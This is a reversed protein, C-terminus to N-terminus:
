VAVSHNVQIMPLHLVGGLRRHSLARHARMDQTAAGGFVELLPSSTSALWVLVLAKGCDCLFISLPGFNLEPTFQLGVLVAHLTREV